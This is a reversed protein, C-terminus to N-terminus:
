NAGNKHCRLEITRAIGIRKQRWISCDIASRQKDSSSWNEMHIKIDWCSTVSGRGGRWKEHFRYGREANLQELACSKRLLTRPYGCVAGAAWRWSRRWHIPTIMTTPLIWHAHLTNLWSRQWCAFVGREETTRRLQALGCKPSTQDWVFAGRLVGLMESSRSAEEPFHCAVSRPRAYELWQNFM